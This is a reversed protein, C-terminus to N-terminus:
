QCTGCDLTWTQTYEVPSVFVPPCPNGTYAPNCGGYDILVSTSKNCNRTLGGSMSGTGPGTQLPGCNNYSLCKGASIDWDVTFRVGCHTCTSCVFGGGVQGLLAGTGDQLTMPTVLVFDGTMLSGSAVVSFSAPCGDPCMPTQARTKAGTALAAVAALVLTALRRSM